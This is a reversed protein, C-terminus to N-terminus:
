VQKRGRPYNSQFEPLMNPLPYDPMRFPLVPLLLAAVVMCAVLILPGVLSGLVFLWISAAMCPVIIALLYKISVAGAYANQRVRDIKPEERRLLAGELDELDGMWVMKDLNSSPQKFKFVRHDVFVQCTGDALDQFHIDIRCHVQHPHLVMLGALPLSREFRIGGPISWFNFKWKGLVWQARQAAEIATMPAIFQRENRM